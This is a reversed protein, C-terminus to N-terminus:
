AVSKAAEDLKFTADRSMDAAQAIESMNTSVTRVGDAATQMNSSIDSTVASQEEIASSIGTSIENLTEIVNRIAEITGVAERTNGQVADIQRSIQETAQATQSALSKVESAVVAFGKGAEGARAAEITANLALLNTQEAIDTILRLVEGISQAAGDLEAIVSQARGSKEVAERSVTAAEAVQRSIEAISSALEEAGSAVAQVNGSAAQTAEASENALQSSQVAAAAIESIQVAMQALVAKRHERAKVMDSVDTAFKVVKYVRGDADLIPSYTAQIYVPAGSKGIRKFEATKAQGAQLDKWFQTYAQGKREEEPVFLSHHKGQLDELVYGMVKLFNDNAYLIQGTPTFEIVAQSRHIAEVQGNRDRDRLYQETIDTALKVVKVVKGGRGRVPTYAGQIYVFDGSKTVRRFPRTQAKGARLEDWFQRYQESDREADTVFLGHLQGIIEDKRYGMLSLFADNATLVRGQTDFEIVAQSAKIADVLAQAGQGRNQFMEQGGVGHRGEPLVPNTIAM